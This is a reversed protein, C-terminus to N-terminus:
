RNLVNLMNELNILYTKLRNLKNILHPQLLNLTLQNVLLM